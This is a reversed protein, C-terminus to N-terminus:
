SIGAAALRAQLAARTKPKPEDCDKRQVAKAVIEPLKMGAGIQANFLAGLADTKFALPGRRSSLQIAADPAMTRLGVYLVDRVLQAQALGGTLVFRDMSDDSRVERLMAKTLKLLEVAISFQVSGIQENLTLSKLEPWSFSADDTVKAPPPSVQRLRAIEAKLAMQNLADLDRGEAYGKRFIKYWSACRGLMMLLLRQNWYEFQAAKGRLQSERSCVRNITGSTGLSIVLTNRDAVGCGAATAQNDGLFTVVRWDNLLRTIDSWSANQSQCVRGVVDGSGIVDPFWRPDLCGDLRSNAARIQPRAFRKTTQNLLGNCVGDSAGLRWRGTLMGASWDGSLMVHKVKPRLGPVQRLAWPLKAAVFREEIRGVTAAFEPVKHNLIETEDVAGNCEWSPAPILPQGDQGLVALDHQRWAQSLYGPRDFTWGEKQLRGLVISLMEPVHQLYHAPWGRWTVRGEMPTSAYSEKGTASVVAAGCESTSFVLGLYAAQHTSKQKSESM